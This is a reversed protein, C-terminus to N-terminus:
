SRSCDLCRLSQKFSCYVSKAQKWYIFTAPVDDVSCLQEHLIQTKITLKIYNQLALSELAAPM